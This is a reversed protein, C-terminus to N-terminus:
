RRSNALNWGRLSEDALQFTIAKIMLEALDTEQAVLADTLGPVCLVPAEVGSVAALIIQLGGLKCLGERRRWYGFRLGQYKPFFTTPQSLTILTLGQIPQLIKAKESPAPPIDGVIV